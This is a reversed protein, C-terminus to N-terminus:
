ALGLERRLAAQTGIRWLRADLLYHQFFLGWYLAVALEAGASRWDLWHLLPLSGRSANLALYFVGSLAALLLMTLLPRAALRAVGARAAPPTGEYRRLNAALVIALYQTGHVIGTVLTVTMFVQEPLTAGPQLPEQWGILLLALTSVLGVPLLGFLWPRMPARCRRRRWGEFVYAAIFAALAAAMFYAAMDMAQKVGEGGPWQRRNAPTVRGSLLFACWLWARLWRRELDPRLPAGPPATQAHYIAFLGEHQRSLHYWSLLVGAALLADMSHWAPQVRALVWALLPPVFGLLSRRLAQQEAEPRRDKPHLRLLTALLHPGDILLLWAWFLLVLTAPQWWALAGAALAAAGGGFFVWADTRPGAIWRAAPPPVAGPRAQRPTDPM